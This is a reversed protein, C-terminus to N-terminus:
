CQERMYGLTSKETFGCMMIRNLMRGGKQLRIHSGKGPTRSYVSIECHWPILPILFPLFLVPVNNRLHWEIQVESVVMM